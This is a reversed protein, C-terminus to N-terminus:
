APLMAYAQILTFTTGWTGTRSLEVDAQRVLDDLGVTGILAELRPRLSAAFQLPLRLYPHGPSLAVVRADLCPEVGLGRLLSPLERGANFNGGAAHFGEEILGILRAVAPADPHVRWSALDPDELVLWGGRRVIRSYVAIQEDARGLPAIQFRAHVLDFSDPPFHTCFLDDKELTVNALTEAEIFARASTLMRDDVESGVVSGDPGVWESLIRLWGLAGCGVDLVRRGSGAPLRALLARGAPEWVRSQLQLRELETPQGALLYSGSGERM